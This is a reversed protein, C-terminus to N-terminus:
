AQELVLEGFFKSVLLCFLFHQKCLVGETFSKKIKLNYALLAAPMWNTYPSLLIDTYRLRLVFPQFYKIFIWICKFICVKANFKLLKTTLTNLIWSLISHATSENYGKNKQSVFPMFYKWYCIVILTNVIM